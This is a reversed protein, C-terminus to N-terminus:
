LKDEGTDPIDEPLPEYRSVGANFYVCDGTSGPAGDVRLKNKPMGIYRLWQSAPDNVKGLMIQLDAAGQKGTKSDKLMDMTPYQLGEGDASIQSTAITIHGYTVGCERAWQYMRELVLDTRPADGFGKINDIMDLVVLGPRHFEFLQEVQGINFGHIDKVRIRDMSGVQKEYMSELKNEKNYKHMQTMTLNLAAQYIRPIIRKGFGENNLWLIPRTSILQPAMYATVDAVFSTKGADPRAGVVVFDGDVLGRIRANMCDLRWRLGATEGMDNLIVGIPTDIWGEEKVSTARKFVSIMSNVSALLEPCDGADWKQSLAGIDTALRAEHLEQAIGDSIDNPSNQHAQRMIGIYTASTEVSRAVEPFWHMFRPGFVKMDVREQEPFMLFYKGYGEIMKNTKEDMSAPHVISILKKFQAKYKMMKLLEIDLM